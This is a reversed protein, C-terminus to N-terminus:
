RIEGQFLAVARGKEPHEKLIEVLKMIEHFFDDGLLNKDSELLMRGCKQHNSPSGFGRKQLDSIKCKSCSM